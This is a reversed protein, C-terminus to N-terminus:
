EVMFLSGIQRGGCLRRWLRDMARYRSGFHMFGTLLPFPAGYEAMEPSAKMTAQVWKAFAMLDAEHMTGRRHQPEVYLWLETPVLVDSFWMPNQLFVGVTGIFGEYMPDDIVGIMGLRKDRPETRTAPDPRTGVEIQRSVLVPNYPFGWGDRNGHHLRVLLDFLAPEDAPIAARVSAPKEVIM